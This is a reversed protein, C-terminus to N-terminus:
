VCVLHPRPQSTTPTLSNLLQIPIYYYINTEDKGRDRRGGLAKRFNKVIDQTIEIYYLGDTFSFVCYSKRTADDLMYKIKNAGIMTDPYTKYANRRSKLEVLSNASIYDVISYKNKCLTLNIDIYTKITNLLFNENEAGIKNM